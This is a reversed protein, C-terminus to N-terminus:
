LDDINLTMNPLQSADMPQLSLSRSYFMVHLAKFGVSLTWATHILDCWVVETVHLPEDTHAGVWPAKVRVQISMHKGRM